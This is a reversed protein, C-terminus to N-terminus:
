TWGGISLQVHPEPVEGQARAAPQLQGEAAPQVHRRRRQGLVAADFTKQYDAFADGSGPWTPRSAGARGDRRERVRLQDHDAQRGHAQADLTNCPSTAATSAGSRSTASRARRRRASAAAAPPTGGAATTVSVAASRASSNGAADRAAVAFSYATSATLGAVTAATGTVSIASRATASCTTAPSASTTPRRPGPWRSRAPRPGPRCAARGPVTPATTDGPPPPPPADRRRLLRRQGPLQGAGRVDRHVRRRLGAAVSGGPAIAGNWAANHATVHNGTQTFTGEWLSTVHATAPLDFELTWSSTAAPGANAIRYTAEYGTGWDSTKTFTATVAAPRRHPGPALGLGAIVLAATVIGRDPARSTPVHHEEPRRPSPQDSARCRCPPSSWVLGTM